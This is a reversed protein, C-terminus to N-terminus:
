PRGVTYDPSQCHNIDYNPKWHRYVGNLDSECKCVEPNLEPTWLCSETSLKGPKVREIIAWQVRHNEAIEKKKKKERGKALSNPKWKGLDATFKGCRHRHILSLPLLVFLPFPFSCYCCIKKGDEQPWWGRIPSFM